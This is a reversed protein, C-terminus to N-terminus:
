MMVNPIFKKYVGYVHTMKKNQWDRQIASNLYNINLTIISINLNVDVINNPKKKTREVKLDESSKKTMQVNQVNKLWKFM